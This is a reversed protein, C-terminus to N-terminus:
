AASAAIAPATGLAKKIQRALYPVFADQNQGGPADFPAFHSARVGIIQQREKPRHPDNLLAYALTAEPQIASGDSVLLKPDNLDMYNSGQPLKTSDVTQIVIQQAKLKKTSNVADLNWGLSKLVLGALSSNMQASAVAAADSFSHDYVCCYRVDDKLPHEELASGLAGGGLSYGHCVIRKAEVDDELFRLVARCAKALTEKNPAVGESGAVGPYNFYIGNGEIQELIAPLDREQNLLTSECCKDSGPVFLLWTGNNLTSPKGVITADLAWDDVQISIRKLKWEGDKYRNVLQSRMKACVEPTSAKPAQLIMGGFKAQLVRYILVLLGIPFLLILLIKKVMRWIKSETQYSYLPDPAKETAFDKQLSEQYTLLNYFATSGSLLQQIQAM